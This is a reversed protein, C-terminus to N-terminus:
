HSGTTPFRSWNKGAHEDLIGGNLAPFVYGGARLVRLCEVLGSIQRGLPFKDGIGRENRFGLIERCWRKQAGSMNGERNYDQTIEWEKDENKKMRETYEQNKFGADEMLTGTFLYDALSLTRDQSGPVLSNRFKSSSPFSKEAGRLTGNEFLDQCFEVLRHPQSTALAYAIATAGCFGAHEQDVKRPDATTRALDALLGAKDMNKWVGPKTSNSFLAHRYRIRNRHTDNKFVRFTISFNGSTRRDVRANAANVSAKTVSINFIADKRNNTTVVIFADDVMLWDLDVELIAGKGALFEKTYVRAGDAIVHLECRQKDSGGYDIVVFGFQYFDEQKDFNSERADNPLEPIFEHKKGKGGDQKNSGDKKGINLVM